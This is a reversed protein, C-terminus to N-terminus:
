KTEEGKTSNNTYNSKPTKFKNKSASFQNLSKLQEFNRRAEISMASTSSSSTTAEFSQRERPPIRSIETIEESETFL